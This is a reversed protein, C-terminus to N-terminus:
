PANILCIKFTRLSKGSRVHLVYLGQRLHSINISVEKAGEPSWSGALKGTPDYLSIEDLSTGSKITLREFAPNPFVSLGSLMNEERGTIVDVLITDSNSANECEAFQTQIFYSYHGNSVGEDLWSTDTVPDGNLKVFGGTGTNKRYIDYGLLASGPKNIAKYHPKVAPKPVLKVAHDDAGISCDDIAWPYWLGNGDGDVGRWAIDVTEGEFQYLDVHYPTNWANLGSPGPYPPLASLDLLVQWTSGHDPSVMIYYHDLHTSGQFAYSWFTLDGNIFINGAILWEDQHNYDWNLGAAYSGTHVGMTSNAGIHTWGAAPNATQRSWQPPPFVSEEFGEQLVNGGFCAPPHWTLRVANGVMEGAPSTAPYCIPYININDLYWSFIESSNQGAARFRVKFGKGRAPSIDLHYNTWPLTGTNKIEAKKNWTNNYYVEVIMKETGTYNRDNLKLDFDLWLAACDYPLGNFATSELSYEYNVVPPQWKFRAAPAPLGEGPDIVWNGAAPTFKWDNFNFTGQNWSEFFPLARGWSITIHLPGDPLSEGTQGPFGYSALDYRATVNYRYYGPELGYEYIELSDPDNIVNVISDNRTVTYGILGPPTYSTSDTTALPKEWSVHAADELAYGQINRAPYLFHSTFTTCQYDSYGSGYLAQVCATYTQGFQVLNGPIPYANKGTYGVITNGLYFYYGLICNVQEQAPESAIVGINDINWNNIDYSDVGFARFRIRFSAGSYDSIDIDESTWPIDGGSNAYTKLTHWTLGDWLEVAMQNMTTTGSNDLFIDYRLKLLTSHEGAITKSTLSQNYNTQQPIGLFIASPAPNGGVTTIGWNWGGSITWGNTVLSGSSWKESFLQKEFRPVDWHAMLSSDHVVLNAPAMRVQLLIVTLNVPAAVPVSQVLTDYGFKTAKLQYTGKWIGSWSVVGSSDAVVHYVTDPYAQNVLKIEVGAPSASDCSVDVLLTLPATWCKGLINSFTVSSWRNGPYRAKVAWRYPGCPFQSWLTDTLTTTSVTDIVTWVNPNQEEGQHLRYVCFSQTTTPNDSLFFPGGPGECRARIMFNGGAPYWSSGGSIFRSYSRFQPSTEDVAIGAANPANGGQIMAIYFNGNTITVPAPLTFEVWGLASPTVNFPASLSGGPSGGPGTADFLEVQFTMLPNSGAPYNVSNGIHVSGGTVKVPYGGPSFRLANMNGQASWIAFNDQIGDDYLLEYGSVPLSWSLPVHQAVTDLYAQMGAPPAASEWLVINLISTGGATFVVPQSTFMEFGAKSCSAPFSGVPEVVLSYVGGSTSLVSHGNVTIKAGTIASGTSGNTVVGQLIATSANLSIAPVLWFLCLVVRLLDKVKRYRGSLHHM